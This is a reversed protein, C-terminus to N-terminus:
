SLFTYIIKNKQAISFFIIIRNTYKTDVYINGDFNQCDAIKLSNQPSWFIKICWGLTWITNNSNGYITPPRSPASCEIVAIRGGVM